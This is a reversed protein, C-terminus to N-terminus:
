RTVVPKPSVGMVAGPYAGPNLAIAPHARCRETIGTARDLLRPVNLGLLAAPVLGVLSLVSYRGGIDAPNTFTQGFGYDQAMKELGTGSDAIAIFQKGGHNGKAKTVPNWFHVFLSMIEITGWSKRTVLFLTRASTLACTVQSVWGPVTSVLAQFQPSAKQPGLSTRLVEPGLSSGGMGLLEVATIRMGKAASVCCRRNELQQRMQVHVTLWGLRDTFEKPESRWLRHDKTRLRERVRTRSLAGLTSSIAKHFAPVLKGLSPASM